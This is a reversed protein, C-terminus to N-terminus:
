LKKAYGEIKDIAKDAVQNIKNLSIPIQVHHFIVDTAYEGM